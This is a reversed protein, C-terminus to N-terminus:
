WTAHEVQLMSSVFRCSAYFASLRVVSVPIEVGLKRLIGIHCQKLLTLHLINELTIISYSIKIFM